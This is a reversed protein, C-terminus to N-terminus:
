LACPGQSLAIGTSPKTAVSSRSRPGIAVQTLPARGSHLRSRDRRSRLPSAPGTGQASSRVSSASGPSPTRMFTRGQISAKASAPLVHGPNSNAGADGARLHWRARAPSYRARRSRGHGGSRWWSSLYFPQRTLRPAFNTPYRPTPTWRHVDNACGWKVQPPPTM